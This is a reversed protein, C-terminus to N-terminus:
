FFILFYIIVNTDHKRTTLNALLDQFNLSNSDIELEKFHKNLENLKVKGNKSILYDKILDFYNPTTTTTTTANAAMSNVTALQSSSCSSSSLEQDQEEYYADIM